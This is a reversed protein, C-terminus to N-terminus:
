LIVKRPARGTDSGKRFCLVPESAWRPSGITYLTRMFWRFLLARFTSRARLRLYNSSQEPLGLYVTDLVFGFSEVFEWLTRYTFYRVHAYFEYRDEKSLPSHFSRGHLLLPLMVLLGAYNPASLYLCGDDRLLRHLERVFHDINLLHEITALSIIADFSTDPLPFPEDNERDLDFSVCSLGAQKLIAQCDPSGDNCLLDLTGDPPTYLDRIRKATVGVGASVDLVRRHGRNEFVAPFIRHREHVQAYDDITKVDALREGELINADSRM